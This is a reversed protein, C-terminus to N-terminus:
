YDKMIIFGIIGCRTSTPPEAKRKPPLRFKRCGDHDQSVGHGPNTKETM